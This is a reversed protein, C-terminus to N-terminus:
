RVGSESGSEFVPLKGGRVGGLSDPGNTNGVRGTAPDYPLPQKTVQDVLMEELVGYAKLEALSGPNRDENDMRYMQIAQNIQGIYETTGVAKAREKPSLTRKGNADKGGGTLSPILVAALIGIIVIVVLLEILGFGAPRLQRENSRTSAM